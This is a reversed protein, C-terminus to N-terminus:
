RTRFLQIIGSICTTYISNGILVRWFLSETAYTQVFSSVILFILNHILAVALVIFLMQPLQNQKKIRESLWKHAVFTLLTKTFMNLGWSGLLADQMFGLFAAMLISSTRSKRSIFWILFLLVFDAQMSFISLHQFFLVQIIVVAFGLGIQKLWRLNM